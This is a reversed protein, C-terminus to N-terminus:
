RLPRILCTSPICALTPASGQFAISSSTTGWFRGTWFSELMASRTRLNAAKTATTAKATGSVRAQFTKGRGPVHCLPGMQNSEAPMDHVVNIGLAEALAHRLDLIWSSKPCTVRSMTSRVKAALSAVSEALKCCNSLSRRGMYADKGLFCCHLKGHVPIDQMIMSPLHLVSTFLQARM